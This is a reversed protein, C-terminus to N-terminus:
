EVVVRYYKNPGAFSERSIEIVDNLEVELEVLAPDKLKIKPLKHVDEIDFKLLIQNIEEQLLKRHEPILFNSQKVM